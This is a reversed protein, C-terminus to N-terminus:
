VENQRIQKFESTLAREVEESRREGKAVRSVFSRDVGLKRAVRSYIGCLDKIYRNISALNERKARKKRM